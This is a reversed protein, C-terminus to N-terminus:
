LELVTNILNGAAQLDNSDKNNDHQSFDFLDRDLMHSTQINSLASFISESRGPSSKEWDAMMNKIQQRQLNDQSGCLNCPIIPYNNHRSFHVIDSEHCYALPRIVLHGSNSLLKVPMSKISGGFFLNLFFTEMIDNRHHDLAIADAGIKGAFGYLNGRRLRSCLSCMTKGEPIIRTVISYTDKEVCHFEVQRDHCFDAIEETTHGPQKQDLHVAILSFDIPAHNHLDLLIDLMTFSDKGGSLCVMVKDGSGILQYDGIAKGTQSRLKQRLKKSRGSVQIAAATNM